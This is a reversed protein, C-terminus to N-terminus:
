SFLQKASGLIGKELRIRWVHPSIRSWPYNKGGWNVITPTGYAYDSKSTNLSWEGGQWHKFAEGLYAYLINKFEIM